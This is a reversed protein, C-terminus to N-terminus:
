KFGLEQACERAATEYAVEVAPDGRAPGYTFSGDPHPTVEFGRQSLCESMLLVYHDAPTGETGGAAPDAASDFLQPITRYVPEGERLVQVEILGPWEPVPVTGVAVGDVTELSRVVDTSSNDPPSVTVMVEDGPKTVVVIAGPDTATDLLALPTDPFAYDPGWALTMPGDSPGSFWAFLERGRITGEVLAWVRGDSVEGVYLVRRTSEPPEVAAEAGRPVGDDWSLGTIEAILEADDSLSGRVPVDYLDLATTRPAPDGDAVEGGASLLGRVWPLSVLVVAVALVAVLVGAQQRRQRRHGALVADHLDRDPGAVADAREAFNTRILQEIDM